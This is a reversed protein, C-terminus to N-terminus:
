KYLSNCPNRSDTVVIAAVFSELLSSKPLGVAARTDSILADYGNLETTAVSLSLPGRQSEGKEHFGQKQMSLSSFLRRQATRRTADFSSSFSDGSDWLSSLALVSLLISPIHM